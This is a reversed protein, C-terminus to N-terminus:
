NQNSFSLIMKFAKALKHFYIFKTIPLAEPQFGNSASKIM